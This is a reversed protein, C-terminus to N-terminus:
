FQSGSPSANQWMVAAKAIGRWSGDPARPENDGAHCRCAATAIHPGKHRWAHTRHQVGNNNVVNLVIEHATASWLM